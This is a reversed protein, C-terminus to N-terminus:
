HSIKFIFAARASSKFLTSTENHNSVVTVIDGEPPMMVSYMKHIVGNDANKDFAILQVGQATRANNHNYKIFRIP